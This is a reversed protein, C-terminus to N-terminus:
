PLPRLGLWFPFSLEMGLPMALSVIGFGFAHLMTAAILQVVVKLWAKAGRLDDYVGLWFILTAPAAIAGYWILDDTFSQSVGTRLLPVCLLTLLFAVYIAVGGMRPTPRKHIRRDNDPVDVAGLALALRRAQPTLFLTLLLSIFFLILYSRM